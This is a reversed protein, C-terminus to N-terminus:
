HLAPGDVKKAADLQYRAVIRQRAEAATEKMAVEQLSAIVPRLSQELDAKAAQNIEGSMQRAVDAGIKSSSVAAELTGYVSKVFNVYEREAPMMGVADPVLKRGFAARMALMASKNKAAFLDDRVGGVSEFRVSAEPATVQGFFASVSQEDGLVRKIERLGVHIAKQRYQADEALLQAAIVATDYESKHTIAVIASEFAVASDEGANMREGLEHAAMVALQAARSNKIVDLTFYM